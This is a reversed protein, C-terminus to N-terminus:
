MNNKLSWEYQTKQCFAKMLTVKSFRELYYDRSGPGKRIADGVECHLFNCSPCLHQFTMLTVVPGSNSCIKSTLCESVLQLLRVPDEPHKLIHAVLVLLVAVIQDGVPSLAPLLPFLEELHELGEEPEEILLDLEVGGCVHSVPKNLSAM